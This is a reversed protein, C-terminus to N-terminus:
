HGIIEVNGWVYMKMYKCPYGDKVPVNKLGAAFDLGVAVDLGTPLEQGFMFKLLSLYTNLATTTAWTTACRVIDRTRNGSPAPRKRSKEKRYRLWHHSKSCTGRPPTINSIKLKGVFFKFAQSHLKLHLLSLIWLILLCIFLCFYTNLFCRWQGLLSPRISLMSAQLAPSGPEIM